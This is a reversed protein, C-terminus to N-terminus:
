AETPISGTTVGISGTEGALEGGITATKSPAPLYVNNEIGISNDTGKKNGTISPSGSVTFTSNGFLAVGGSNTTALNNTVSANGSMTLQGGAMYVGGGFNGATNGTIKTNGSVTATAGGSVYVSGNGANNGTIEGGHMNFTGTQNVYVGGGNTTATNNSIEGGYMNFTGNNKVGGDISNGTITGGFMSFVSSSNYVSVGGGNKTDAHTIKGGGKCDTLVLSSGEVITVCRGVTDAGNSIISFGNLCLQVGEKICISKDLSINSGLYYSGQPLVYYPAAPNNGVIVNSTTWEENDIKLTGNDMWLKTAFLTESSGCNHGGIGTCEDSGCLFHEHPKDKLVLKTPDGDKVAIKYANDDSKFKAAIDDTLGMGATVVVDVAPTKATVGIKASTDLGDKGITIISMPDNNYQGLYVNNKGSNKTNGTIQVNGSVTLTATGGVFVGGGNYDTDAMLLVGFSYYNCHNGAM